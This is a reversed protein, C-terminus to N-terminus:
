SLGSTDVRAQIVPTIVLKGSRNGKLSSDVDFQLTIKVEDGASDITFPSFNVKFGTQQGSAVMVERETGDDFVVVAQEATILRLQTYTGPSLESRTLLTDLGSQLDILDVTLDEETLVEVGDTSDEQASDGQAVIMTRTIAVSASDVNKPTMGGSDAPSAAALAKGASTGAAHLELTGSEGALMSGTSDCGVALLGVTVTLALLFAPQRRM